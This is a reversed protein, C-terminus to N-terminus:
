DEGAPPRECVAAEFFNKLIGRTYLLYLILSSISFVAFRVFIQIILFSLNMPYERYFLIWSLIPTCVTVMLLTCIIWSNKLGIGISYLIPCFFLVFNLGIADRIHNLHIINIFTAIVVLAFYFNRINIPMLSIM